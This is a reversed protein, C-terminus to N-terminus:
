GPRTRELAALLGDVDTATHAASLTVRLRASGEPVTPPRIATVLYGAAELAASWASATEAEGAIVPQIPTRSAMLTLGGQVAGERFRAVLEELHRRRQPEGQVIALAERVGAAVAPPIATTYVYTRAAQVLYDCLEHSGAVFAGSGGLAKGLTGVLVPVADQGFGAGAVSGAGGEGLVGIGHADDVMLRADHDQAVGALEAIPAIDGDMSFVGDTVVLTDGRAAALREGAASADAHRYRALRAESLRAGDLLSAHNLRDEVVTDGRGTLADIAGMNAMYGTSFLLARDRGVFEALERELREHAPRHGNVLHAAGSGAGQRAAEAVAAAVREDAALGLYDNSCFPTLTAGDDCVVRGACTDFTRVTRYLGQSRRRALAAGLDRAM